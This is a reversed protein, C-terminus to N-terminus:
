GGAVVSFSINIGWTIVVNIQTSLKNYDNYISHQVIDIENERAPDHHTIEQSDSVTVPEPVLM